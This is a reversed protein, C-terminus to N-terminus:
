KKKTDYKSWQYIILDGTEDASFMNIYRLIRKFDPTMENYSINMFEEAWIKGLLFREYYKISPKITNKIDETVYKQWISKNDFMGDGWFCFSLAPYINEEAGNFKKFDVVSNDENLYFRYGCYAAM